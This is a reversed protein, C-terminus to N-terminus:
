ASLLFGDDTRVQRKGISRDYSICLELLSLMVTHLIMGSLTKAPLIIHAGYTVDVQGRIGFLQKDCVTFM